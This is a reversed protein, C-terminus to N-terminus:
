EQADSLEKRIESIWGGLSCLCLLGGASLFLWAVTYQLAPGVALLAIGLALGAPWFSPEPLQAPAAKSWGPRENADASEM